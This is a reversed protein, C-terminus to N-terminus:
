SSPHADQTLMISFSVYPSVNSFQRALLLLLLELSSSCYSSSYPLILSPHTITPPHWSEWLGWHGKFDKSEGRWCEVSMKLMWVASYGLTLKLTCPLTIFAPLSSTYHINSFLHTPFLYVQHESLCSWSCVSQMYPSRGKCLYYKVIVRYTILAICPLM